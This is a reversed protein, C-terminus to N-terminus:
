RLRLLQPLRRLRIGHAGCLLREQRAARRRRRVNGAGEGRGGVAAAAERGATARRPM